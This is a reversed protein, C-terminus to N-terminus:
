RPMKMVIKGFPGRALHDLAAPLDAFAYEADVVPKFGTQDIARVFDELSKRHGVQIGEVTLHKLALPAFHGSIEFGELVGILSVRGFVAAAQLARGLHAGGVIELIHDAGRDGTLRYIAEVWDEKKRNIGHRAGLAKARELKDDDGSVVIVDAGHAAAIQLGFLAVGGTGQVVVTQGAHLRGREVLATWATLGACPLTSAEIDDLGEPAKVAWDQDLVIYESLVGQMAGGLTRYNPERATGFGPGDIWGPIFTSIVREGPKFRTVATGAAIVVGAADSAPVFPDAKAAFGLGDEILLLDRYNLSVAAVKVLIEHEAPTPVAASVLGLNARGVDKLTWQKMTDTRVHQNM